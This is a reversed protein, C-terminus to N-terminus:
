QHKVNCPYKGDRVVPTGTKNYIANSRNWSINYGISYVNSWITDFNQTLKLSLFIHKPRLFSQTTKINGCYFTMFTGRLITAYVLSVYVKVLATVPSIINDFTWNYHYASSKGKPKYYFYFDTRPVFM